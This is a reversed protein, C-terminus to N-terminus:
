ICGIMDGSSSVFLFVYNPSLHEERETERETERQRERDRETERQRERDRETERQRERDRETERERERERERQTHTHTHTHTHLFITHAQPIHPQHATQASETYAQKHICMHFLADICTHISGLLQGPSNEQIVEVKNKSRMRLRYSVSKALNALWCPAAIPRGTEM